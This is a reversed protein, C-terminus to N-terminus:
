YYKYQAVHEKKKKLIIQVFWYDIQEFGFYDIERTSERKRERDSKMTTGDILLGSSSFFLIM